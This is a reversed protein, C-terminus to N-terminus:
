NLGCAKLFRARDFRPNDRAMEDAIDRAVLKLADRGAPTQGDYQFKICSAIAVYDKRTM